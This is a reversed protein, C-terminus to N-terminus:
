RSAKEWADCHCELAGADNLKELRAPGPCGNAAQINDCWTTAGRDCTCVASHHFGDWTWEKVAAPACARQCNLVLDASPADCGMVALLLMVLFTKM